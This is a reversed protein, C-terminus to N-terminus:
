RVETLIQKVIKLIQQDSLKSLNGLNDIKDITQNIKTEQEQAYNNVTNQININFTATIAVAISITAAIKILEKLDLKM